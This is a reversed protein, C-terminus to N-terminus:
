KRCFYEYFFAWCYFTSYKKLINVFLSVRKGDYSDNNCLFSLHVLKGFNDEIYIDIRQQDTSEASLSPSCISLGFLKM